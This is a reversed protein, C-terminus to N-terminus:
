NGSLVGFNMHVEDFEGEPPPADFFMVDPPIYQKTHRIIEASKAGHAKCLYRAYSRALIISKESPGFTPRDRPILHEQMTSIKAKRGESMEWFRVTPIPQNPAPVFEGPRPELIDDDNLGAALLSQYFRVAGRANPDPIQLVAIEKDQADRLHIELRAAGGSGSHPNAVDNETFHYNHTFKIGKLYSDAANNIPTAFHPPTAWGAGDETPWPGSPAALVMAGVAALHGGILVSGVVKVWLPLGAPSAPTSM